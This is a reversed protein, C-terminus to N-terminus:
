YYPGPNNTSNPPNQGNPGAPRAGPPVLPAVPTGGYYGRPPGGGQPRQAPGPPLAPQSVPATAAQQAAPQTTETQTTEGDGGSLRKFIGAGMPSNMLAMLITTLDATSLNKGKSETLKQLLGSEKLSTGTVFLTDLLTDAQSVYKACQKCFERLGNISQMSQEFNKPAFLKGLGGLADVPTSKDSAATKRKRASGTKAGSKVAPKSGARSGTARANAGASPTRAPRPSDMRILRIERSLLEREREYGPQSQDLTSLKYQLRKLRDARSEQSRKKMTDM